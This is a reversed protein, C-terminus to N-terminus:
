NKKGIAMKYIGHTIGLMGVTFVTMFGTMYLRARPVKQYVFRHDSQFARQREHIRNPLNVLSDLM